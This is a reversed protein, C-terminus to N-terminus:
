PDFRLVKGQVYTMLKGDPGAGGWALLGGSKFDAQLETGSCLIRNSERSV